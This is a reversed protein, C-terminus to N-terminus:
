ALMGGESEERSAGVQIHQSPVSMGCAPGTYVIWSLARVGEGLTKFHHFAPSRRAPGSESLACVAKMQAALPDILSQFAADESPGPKCCVSVALLVDLSASFASGFAQSFFATSRNTCECVQGDVWRDM